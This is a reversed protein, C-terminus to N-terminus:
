FAVYKISFDTTVLGYILAAAAVTVFVFQGLIAYGAVWRFRESASRAAVIPSMIGILAAAFAILISGHGISATM